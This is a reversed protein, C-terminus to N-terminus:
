HVYALKHCICSQILGYNHYFLKSYAVRKDTTHINGINQWQQFCIGPEYGCSHFFCSSVTLVLIINIVNMDRKQTVTSIHYFSAPSLTIRGAKIKLPERSSNFWYISSCNEANKLSQISARRSFLLFFDYFTMTWLTHRHDWLGCLFLIHWQSNDYWLNCKDHVGSQKKQTTTM